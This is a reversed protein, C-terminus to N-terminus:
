VQLFIIGVSTIELFRLKDTLNSSSFSSIGLISSNLQKRM